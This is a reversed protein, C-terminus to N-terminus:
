AFYNLTSPFPKGEMEKPLGFLIRGSESPLRTHYIMCLNTRNLCRRCSKPLKNSSLEGSIESSTQYLEKNNTRIKDVYRFKNVRVNSSIRGLDNRILDVITYHEAIEKEDSLLKDLANEESVDITGKM